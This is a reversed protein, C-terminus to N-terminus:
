WGLASDISGGSASIRQSLRNSTELNMVPLDVDGIPTLIPTMKGFPPLSFRGESPMLASSLQPPPLPIRVGPGKPRRNELGDCDVVRGDRWLTNLWAYSIM